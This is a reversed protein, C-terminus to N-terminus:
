QIPQNSFVQTGNEYFFPQEEVGHDLNRLWYLTNAPVDKFELFNYKAQQTGDPIWDNDWYYLRYNDGAVIGNDANRPAIRIRNIKVPHGFDMGAWNQTSFTLIDGDFIEMGPKECVTDGILKFYKKQTAKDRTFVPLPSAETTGPVNNETIFELEAINLNVDKAFLRYYRYSNWNQFVLDQFYVDLTDKITYLTVSDSFDKRNAGQIKTGIITHGVDVMKEKVPFKRLLFLDTKDGSPKIFKLGDNRVTFLESCHRLKGTNDMTSAIGTLETPINEFTVNNKEKDIRGGAVPTWTGHIFVSFWCLNNGPNTKKLPIEVDCTVVFKDTVDILCPTNFFAPLLEGPAKSFYLSNPQVSFTKIYMKTALQPRHPKRETGPEQYLATFYTLTGDPEPIVCGSHGINQDRWRPISLELVPLGISRILQGLPPLQKTCIRVATTNWYFINYFGLDPLEVQEDTWDWNTRWFYNNLYSIAKHPDRQLSDTYYLKDFLRNLNKRVPYVAEDHFRYPLIYECFEDFSLHKNWDRGRVKFATEINEIIFGASLTRLDSQVNYDIESEEIAKKILIKKAVSKYGKLAEFYKNNGPNSKWLASISDELVLLEWFRESPNIQPGYHWRMNKILFKAAELKLSDEPNQSYHDLVKQLEARNEGALELASELKNEKSFNCSILIFSGAFFLLKRILNLKNM